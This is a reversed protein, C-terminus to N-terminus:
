SMLNLTFVTGWAEQFKRIGMIKTMQGYLVEVVVYIRGIRPQINILCLFQIQYMFTRVYMHTHRTFHKSSEIYINYTNPLHTRECLTFHFVCVYVCASVCGLM